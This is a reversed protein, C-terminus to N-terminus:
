RVGIGHVLEPIRGLLLHLGIVFIIPVASPNGALGQSLGPIVTLM